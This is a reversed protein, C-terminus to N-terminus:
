LTIDSHSYRARCDIDSGASCTTALGAMKSFLGTQQGAPFVDPASDVEYWDSVQM